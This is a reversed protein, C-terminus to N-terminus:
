AALPTAETSYASLDELRQRVAERMQERAQRKQQTRKRHHRDISELPKEVLPLRITARGDTEAQAQFPEFAQRYLAELRAQGLPTQYHEDPAIVRIQDLKLFSLLAILSDMLLFLPVLQFHQKRFEKIREQQGICGQNRCILASHSGDAQSQFLFGLAHSWAGDIFLVLQFEGENRITDRTLLVLRVEARITPYQATWLSVEGETLNDLLSPPFRDLLFRYHDHIHRLSEEVSWRRSLYDRYYGHHLRPSTRSFLCLLREHLFISELSRTEAGLRRYQLDQGLRRIRRKLKYLRYSPNLSKHLFRDFTQAM